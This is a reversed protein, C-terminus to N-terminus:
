PFFVAGPVFGGRVRAAEVLWRPVKAASLLTPLVPSM